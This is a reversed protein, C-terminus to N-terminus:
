FAPKAPLGALGKKFEKDRADKRREAETLPTSPRVPLAGHDLTPLPPALDNSRSPNPSALTSLPTRSAGPEEKVAATFEQELANAAQEAEEKTMGEEEDSYYMGEDGQAPAPSASASASGSLPYASSGPVYDEDTPKSRAMAALKAEM